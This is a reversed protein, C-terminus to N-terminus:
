RLLHADAGIFAATRAAIPGEDFQQAYPIRFTLTFMTLKAAPDKERLIETAIGAIASSDVGGSLYIAVLVDAGLRLRVAETLHSRVTAIMEDVTSTNPSDQTSYDLDWYAQVKLYGDRRFVLFHGPMLKRVGKFVTRDDAFYGNHVISDIDWEPKLSSCDAGSMTYSLPKVGFPDRAAFLLRRHYDYLVFTFEGRLSSRANFSQQKYLHIVIESDSKTKSVAGQAELDARSQIMDDKDSLPQNGSKWISSRSAVIGLDLVFITLYSFETPIPDVIAIANLSTELMDVLEDASPLSCSDSHYIASLGCM